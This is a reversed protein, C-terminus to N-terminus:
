QRGQLFKLFIEAVAVVEGAHNAKGVAFALAKERLELDFEAAVDQLTQPDPQPIM